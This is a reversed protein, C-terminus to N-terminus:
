LSQATLDLVQTKGTAVDVRVAKLHSVPEGDRAHTAPMPESGLLMLADDKRLVARLEDMPLPASWVPKGLPGSARTLQLRGQAGLKDSHLVLVSDPQRYWLPQDDANGDHLLGARLFRPSEPLVHYDSFQPRKGWRDPLNRPWDPPGASVQ